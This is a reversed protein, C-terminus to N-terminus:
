QKPKKEKREKKKITRILYAILLLQIPYSICGNLYLLYLIFPVTSLAHPSPEVVSVSLLQECQIWVWSASFLHAMSKPQWDESVGWCSMVQLSGWARVPEVFTWLLEMLWYSVNEVFMEAGATGGCGRHLSFAAQHMCKWVFRWTRPCRWRARQRAAIAPTKPDMCNEVRDREESRM